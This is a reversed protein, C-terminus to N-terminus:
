VQLSYGLDIDCAANGGRLGVNEPTVEILVVKVDEPPVGFPRLNQVMARYLQRKADLSRGAFLVIEVRTFRPGSAKPTLYNGAPHEVLRALPEDAPTRLAQVVAEHAAELFATQKGNLWSGRVEVLMDPM